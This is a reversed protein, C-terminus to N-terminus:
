SGPNARFTEYKLCTFIFLLNCLKYCNLRPQLLMLKKFFLKLHLHVAAVYFVNDDNLSIKKFHKGLPKLFLSDVFDRNKKKYSRLNM